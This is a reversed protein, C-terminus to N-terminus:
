EGKKSQNHSGRRATRSIPQIAAEQADANSQKTQSINEALGAITPLEFLNRLPIEVQFTRRVKSILQTAVLSNGGLEFFNDHIGVRELDLVETWLQALKEEVPNRPAIYAVVSLSLNEPVPLARREIKGNATLPLAELFMFASPVMYSPLKQKLFDRINHISPAQKKPVIYAVLRKDGPNDERLLVVTERIAPYQILAAEIEGLEIRFGRLKVQNDIRGLFEINGDPLYRALDGTKYLRSEGLSNGALSPPQITLNKFPNPIFKQATLDPRNLYGRALGVGGIHLEGAVGVPVPQLHRDLIYLQTNAIARGIPVIPLESERQCAWYTVDIAAETPGYLNHLQADLRAFFSQQLEYSLAEGSCIVRKLCQCKQVELEELFIQLMPPVFHITTIEEQAILEVLYASDQHGGPKAVVLRSGTILPWFFEWVSVDFSFPTKQLVRDTKTLQYTDQMWLLRNCISRHTNMAGKPTGTSGSTYIVYALNEATVSSPPNELSEQAISEWDADLCVVKAKHKPLNEVVHQQTLLVTVQSDSLMFALREPPYSPDLSVYAGGAKLIGLLGVVMELSREMCVGVLVEPQVGLKQLHHAVQNAQQNLARYTLKKDEFVVAINDPTKEVQTEILQHLCADKPYDVQTDNWEVLLQHQEQESLLTSLEYRASPQSAMVELTKAYYGRIAEREEQSFSAQYELKVQVRDSIPNLVFNAILAFNTEEFFAADLIEINKLGLVSEYVHFHTFNFATEFILERNLEKQLEPLPYRRFPLLERESAFTQKVLDIWTGGPLEQCFPLTNLFLGLVKEGDKKELRGNSVLGTLVASQGSLLSLVRLHAALLVSKLPVGASEALQKLGASTESSLFIEEACSKKQHTEEAPPLWRPLKTITSDKLKESWFSRCEESAIAERELSVFDRFHSVPSPLVELTEEGELLASYQQFLESFLSAVSWGDLIAHHFSLTLQFTADSRRHVHFKLLPPLTWDFNRSKEIEFWNTLADVQETDSLHRWDEVQLPVPLMRTKDSPRISNAEVCALGAQALEITRAPPSQEYLRSKCDGPINTQHVLQLPEKFSTLDFSTRLVAHRSILHHIATQLAELDFTAQVQFSVIDHYVATEPSYESHFLMGAQLKTLPYADEIENPLKQRDAESILSFPAVPATKEIESAELHPALESITQYQFLQQISFNLGRNQVLSRVQISRISDGGLAFFNDHIGVQELKLVERWVEALVQEAPTRPAVFADDLNPRAIGPSPLGQRDVKGNPTLPLSELTVFASPISYEPLQQQLYSRLESVTPVAASKPVVYAVLKSGAEDERILVVMDRIQPHQALVSEIEELEIRFGRLKIQRDCRGLYEITGDARYRALDGTKYLRSREGLGEGALLPSGSEGKGRLSPPQPTLDKFPNPIFKAATLEPRNLYGRAVGAGGIHLEGIVGIPVPQLHRDLIYLQTNAIPHGIPISGSQHKGLPVQYICCGVVTETPGYENVLVTDPAFKQWFELSQALLNEGGIIFAKTRGAAEEPALQHRLLDLQAPTIKVLSFDGGQRLAMSLAEIGQAESLLIVRNGVLLPSFLGTITMDFSLSSHVPAGKGAEVAYAQSCWSLYNVLGRHPILTGKPKGTSGSTYIVYALNDANVKSSPTEVSEQSICDWDTDLCIVKATHHPLKEVLHQQTLLVPMQADSLMFSLREQPYSPDLPVYAGGAKLIGILGVMMELSREVCIGVLSETTIGQKQLYHALQNARENLQKYTLHQNEFVIAVADPTKQVQQEFLQHFCSDAPYDTQTQNWEVLLQYREAEMLLPLDSLRRDPNAVIGELLTQFHGLMRTITAEDFLDTNYELSGTLGQETDTIELTLDFKATGTEVELLSLSLGPLQLATKPATHLAFMVQFLPTYSRDRSPQLEEVLREFPLEQHTYAQLAVERVRALLERFSMNESLLTRLVLTNVFFGILPETEKQTRNTMPTGISIDQQGTYRYLLTNFAALLTMFLTSESQQSLARLSLALPQSITFFQRAGRFTNVTPRPRNTPLELIPSAGTLQQKWYNLQTELVEGVLQQRQWAAFDAYQIPLEPLPSPKGQCFAEYLAALEQIIVGRSWGDSVIHHMTFLMLHETESLQLLKVRLLPEQSLDFPRQAEEKKADELLQQRENEPLDRLDIVPLNLVLDSFKEQVPEGGVAMFRTQLVEHRQRIKNLSKELAKVNLFGTLRIAIPVNYIPSAPELQHLVWLRQQHFSLPLSKSDKRQTISHNKVSSLGKQKLWLELLARQEPSLAAIRQSINNM